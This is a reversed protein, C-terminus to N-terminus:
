ACEKEVLRGLSDTKGLCAMLLTLPVGHERGSLIIRLPSYFARGKIKLENQFEKLINKLNGSAWSSSPINSLKEILADIWACRERTTEATTDSDQRRFADALSNLLERKCACEPLLEGILAARDSNLEEPPNEVQPFLALCEGLFREGPVAMALRGFRRMRVPDHIPSVLAVSDIDFLTALEVPTMIRDTPAGSWSLTAMYSALAEPSWGEDRYSAISIAGSRKSLKHRQSDLVMPIHVWEPANWGLARYILEQKPTNSLHEEGRIVHTIRFDHDDAVVAFLYTPTGDSRAIIFDGIESTKVTLEGRLRDRFSLAGLGDPAAFRWCFPEKDAMRRKIEEPTIDRCVDRHPRRPDSDKDAPCFCRYASGARDLEALVERHRNSRESQRAPECDPPLGLWILDELIAREFEPSSRERDTDEFRLLFNGGRAKAWM